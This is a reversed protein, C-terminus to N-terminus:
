KNKSLKFGVLEIKFTFLTNDKSIEGLRVEEFAADHKLRNYFKVITMYEVSKGEMVVQEDTVRLSDLYFDAPFVSLLYNFIEQFREQKELVKSIQQARVHKAKIDELFPKLVRFIEQQQRFTDNLDVIEQDVKLRYFFVIIIIIQTIVLIYRFYHLLFYVVGEGKKRRRKLLLNVNYKRRM